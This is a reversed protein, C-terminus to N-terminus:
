YNMVLLEAQKRRTTKSASITREIEVTRWGANKIFETLIPHPFMTLLFKGRVSTLLQCLDIFNSETYGKYHGMDSGIYPPDVFHFTNDSDRSAIVKLADRNEIQVNELRECLHQRFALKANTFCKVKSNDKIEYGWPGDLKSAFSMKSLVWLAWARKVEDFYQANRYIYGAFLHEERAYPTKDIEASLEPFRTKLVKYFNVLESNLDNIIESVAPEKAFFVAAGGIFAETYTIHAPIEPLIKPLLTQKGGYYSIPTKILIKKKVM